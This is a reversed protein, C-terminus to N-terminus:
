WPTSEHQERASPGGAPLSKAEWADSRSISVWNDSRLPGYCESTGTGSESLRLGVGSEAVGPEEGTVSGASAMSSRADALLQQAAELDMRLSSTSQDDDSDAPVADSGTERLLKRTIRLLTSVKPRKQPKPHWCARMMTVFAKPAQRRLHRRAFPVAGAKVAKLVIGVRKLGQFPMTRTLMEHMVM